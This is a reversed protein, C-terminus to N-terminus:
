ANVSSLKEAMCIFSHHFFITDDYMSLVFLFIALNSPWNWFDDEKPLRLFGDNGPFSFDNSRKLCIFFFFMILIFWQKYCFSINLRLNKELKSVLVHARRGLLVYCVLHNLTWTKTRQYGYSFKVSCTFLVNSCHVSFCHLINETGVFIPGPISFPSFDCTVLSM